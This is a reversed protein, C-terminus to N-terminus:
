QVLMRASGNMIIKGDTMGLTELLFGFILDERSYVTVVVNQMEDIPFDSAVEYAINIPNYNASIDDVTELPLGANASYADILALTEPIEDHNRSLYNAGERAANTLIIKHYFMRGFDMAGLILLLILPLTLALEVLAQGKRKGYRVKDLTIM